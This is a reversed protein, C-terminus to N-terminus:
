DDEAPRVQWAVERSGNGPVTVEIVRQGDKMRMGKHERFVWEGRAYGLVIRFRVPRLNANTLTARVQTWRTPRDYPEVEGTGHCHMFVHTSEALDIEIEQGAAYDRLRDEAVLLEGPGAQSRPEFVTIGGMPLAVGLGHARDNVTALKIGAAFPGDDDPDPDCRAVYLLHGSVEDRDLFAVQKIGQAAVTVPEPVRYLKLDGLQEETAVMAPRAAIRSGTVIVNVGDDDAETQRPEFAPLRNLTVEARASGTATSGFPYCTLRLPEAYPAEGLEEFDSEVNLKGAIVLLEADPFSQGNDNLLTLWSM